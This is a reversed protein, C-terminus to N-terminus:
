YQYLRYFNISPTNCFRINYKYTGIGNSIYMKTEELNYFNKMYPNTGEQNLLYSDFPLKMLGNLTHGAFVLNPKRNNKTLEEIITPEHNIWIQYFNSIDENNPIAKLLDNENKLLSNTGIFLLPDNGKYYLFDSKNNLIMFGSSEMIEIYGNKDIYDNDGIVSYKKYTANVQSLIRKLTEKTNANIEITNNLLDGTYIVIDPKLENIKNVVNELEEEKISSGYLIDSFHVIKIGHFSYPLNNDTIAYEHVMLKKPEIRSIYIYFLISIIFFLLLLKKLLSRKKPEEKTELNNKTKM